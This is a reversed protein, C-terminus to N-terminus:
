NIKNALIGGFYGGVGGVGCILINQIKKKDLM